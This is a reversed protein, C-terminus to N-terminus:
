TSFPSLMHHNQRFVDSSGVIRELNSINQYHVMSLSLMIPRHKNCYKNPQSTVKSSEAAQPQAAGQKFCPSIIKTELYSTGAEGAQGCFCAFQLQAASCSAPVQGEKTQVDEVRPRTELTSKPCTRKVELPVELGPKM